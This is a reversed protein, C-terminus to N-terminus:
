RPAMALNVTTLIAAGPYLIVTVPGTAAILGPKAVSVTYTGLAVNPIDYSGDPRTTTTTRQAPDAASVATVTAGEIPTLGAVVDVVIGAITGDGPALTPAPTPTPSPPSAPASGGGGSGGGGSGGREPAPTSAAAHNGSTDHADGADGTADDAPDGARPAPTASPAVGVVSATRVLSAEPALAFRANTNLLRITMTPLPAQRQCAALVLCAVAFGAAKCTRPPRPM